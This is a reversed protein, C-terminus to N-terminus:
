VGGAEESPVVEGVWLVALFDAGDEVDGFVANGLFGAPGVVLDDVADVAPFDFAEPDDGGIGGM